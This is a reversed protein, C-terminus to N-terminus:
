PTHTDRQGTTTRFQVLGNGHIMVLHNGFEDACIGDDSTEDDTDAITNVTFTTANLQARASDPFSLMLLTLILLASIASIVKKM